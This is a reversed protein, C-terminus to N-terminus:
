GGPGPSAVHRFVLRSGDKGFAIVDYPEFPTGEMGPSGIPMGPVALGVVDPAEALFEQVISPPIHGEVVYGEVLATHCSSLDAPVGERRKVAALDRVDEVTVAFGADELHDVWKACCGCYETKYVHVGPGGALEGVSGAPEKSRGGAILVVAVGTAALAAVVWNRTSM